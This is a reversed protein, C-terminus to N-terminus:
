EWQHRHRKCLTVVYTDGALTGPAGCTECIYESLTEASAAINLGPMTHPGGSLRLGGYKQMVQAFPKLEGIESLQDAVAAILDSWGAGSSIECDFMGPWALRLEARPDKEMAFDQDVSRWRLSRRRWTETLLAITTHGDAMPHNMPSVGSHEILLSGDSAFKVGVVRISPADPADDFISTTVDTFERLLIAPLLPDLGLQQLISIM